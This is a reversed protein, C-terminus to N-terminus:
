DLFSRSASTRRLAPSFHFYIVKLLTTSRKMICMEVPFRQNVQGDHPSSKYIFNGIPFLDFGTQQSVDIKKNM